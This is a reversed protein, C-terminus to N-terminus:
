YQDTGFINGAYRKTRMETAFASCNDYGRAIEQLAGVLTSFVQPRTSSSRSPGEISRNTVNYNHDRQHSNADHTVEVSQISIFSITTILTNTKILKHLVHDVLVQPRFYYRLAPLVVELPDRYVEIQSIITTTVNIVMQMM